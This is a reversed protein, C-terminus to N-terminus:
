LEVEGIEALQTEADRLRAVNGDEVLLLGDELFEYSPVVGVHAPDAISHLNAARYAKANRTM